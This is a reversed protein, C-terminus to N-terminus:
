LSPKPNGNEDYYKIPYMTEGNKYTIIQWLNGSEYYVKHEGENRGNKSMGELKLNGNKYYIKHIGERKENYIDMFSIQGNNFYGKSEQFIGDKFKTEMKINSNEDKIIFTGTYPKDEGIVYVKDDKSERKSMDEIREKGYSSLIFFLMVLILVIKKM